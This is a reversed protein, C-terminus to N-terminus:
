QSPTALRYSRPGHHISVFVRERRLPLRPYVCQSIGSNGFCLIWLRTNASHLSALAPLQTLTVIDNHSELGVPHKGKGIQEICVMRTTFTKGVVDVSEGQPNKWKGRWLDSSLGAHLPWEVNPKESWVTLMGEKLEQAPGAELILHEGPEDGSLCLLM